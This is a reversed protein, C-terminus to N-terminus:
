GSLRIGRLAAFPSAGGRTEVRREVRRAPR